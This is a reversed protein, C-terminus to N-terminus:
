LRAPSSQFLTFACSLWDGEEEPPRVFVAVITGGRKMAANLAPNDALRLDRRFWFVSPANV